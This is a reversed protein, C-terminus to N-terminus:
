DPVLRTHCLPLLLTGVTDARVDQDAVIPDYEMAGVLEPEAANVLFGLESLSRASKLLSFVEDPCILGRGNAMAGYWDRWEAPSRNRQSQESLWARIPAAALVILRMRYLNKPDALLQLCLHITSINRGRATSSDTLLLM